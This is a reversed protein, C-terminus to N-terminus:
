PPELIGGGMPVSTNKVLSPGGKTRLNQVSTKQRPVSWRKYPPKKVLSPGGGRFRDPRDATKLTM